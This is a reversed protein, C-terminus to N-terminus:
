IAGRKRMRSKKKQSFPSFICFPPAPSLFFSLAVSPPFPTPSFSSSTAFSPPSSFFSHPSSPPFDKEEKEKRTRHPTLFAGGGDGGRKEHANYYLFTERFFLNGLPLMARRKCYALINKTPFYLQRRRRFIHDYGKSCSLIVCQHNGTAFPALSISEEGPLVSPSFSITPFSAYPSSLLFLIPPISQLLPEYRCMHYVFSVVFPSFVM